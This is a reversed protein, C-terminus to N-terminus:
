ALGKRALFEKGKGLDIRVSKLGREKCIPCEDEPYMQMDLDLLSLLEPVMLTEATVKGGSRNCLCAVGIVEGGAQLVADRTKIVTLGSNIVDEVILCRKGKVLKAYGRKIVRRTGVKTSFTIKVSSGFDGLHDPESEIKVAGNASLERFGVTGMSEQKQESVDEEDACVALVEPAPAFLTLFNATWQSLSVAGVTPGVVVDVQEDKFHEAIDKCLLRVLKTHPYIADKNVYERGHYWGDAKKAYVLHDDTIIADAEAFIQKLEIASLM